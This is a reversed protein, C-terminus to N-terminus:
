ANTLIPTSPVSRVSGLVRAAHHARPSGLMREDEENTDEPFPVFGPKNHTVQGSTFQTYKLYNYLGIGPGCDAVSLPCPLLSSGFITIVLGTTNIPTLM